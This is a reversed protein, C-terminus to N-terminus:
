HIKCDKAFIILPAVSWPHFLSTNWKQEKGWAEFATTGGEKIMNLWCGEDLTLDRALEEEGHKMLGALTFYSMYTGMSIQRKARIFEVIRGILAGDGDCIGYLLPLVNSRIASHTLAESECFLGQQESCFAVIYSARVKSNDVCNYM